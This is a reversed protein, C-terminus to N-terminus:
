YKYAYFNMTEDHFDMVSMRAFRHDSDLNISGRTEYATKRIATEFPTEGLMRKGGCMDVRNGNPWIQVIALVSLNKVGKIKKVQLPVLM